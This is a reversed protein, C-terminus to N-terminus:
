ACPVEARVVTPGGPPSSVFLRGDVGALRDAIGRLGTGGSTDAGGPGADAVTARILPGDRVVDVSAAAGGAHKAVNTLLEAVAFYLLAELAPEPREGVDVEITVPMPLRAAVASLAADLGRAELVPPRLGRTLTRLEDITGTTEARARKVLALAGADVSQGGGAADSLRAEAQGLLVSLAILRQQAGDHLDRELKLREADAASVTRARAEVLEGVRRELQESEPSGLLAVTVWTDLWALGRIVAPAGFALVVVMLLIGGAVRPWDPFSALVSARYPTIVALVLAGLV